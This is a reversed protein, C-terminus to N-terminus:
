TGRGSSMQRAMDRRPDNPAMRRYAESWFHQADATRDDQMAAMAQYIWPAPDNTLPAAQQFQALAEPTVRGDAIRVLARGLGLMAEALRPDRRLAADYERAAEEARGQSLLIEAAFFHPRADRRHDRAAQGLVALAEDPSYTSPDRHRLAELRDHFPAGPLEPRGVVLYSLLAVSAVGACALLAPRAAVVGGGAARYARLTWAAAAATMLAAITLVILANTV